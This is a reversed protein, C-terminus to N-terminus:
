SRLRRVFLISLARRQSHWRFIHAIIWSWLSPQQWLGRTPRNVRGCLVIFISILFLRCKFHTPRCLVLKQTTASGHRMTLTISERVIRYVQSSSHPLTVEGFVVSACEAWIETLCKACMLDHRYQTNAKNLMCCNLALCIVVGQRAFRMQPPLTPFDRRGVQAFM